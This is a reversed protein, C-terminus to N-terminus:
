SSLPWDTGDYRERFLHSKSWKWSRNPLQVLKLLELLQKNKCMMKLMQKKKLLHKTKYDKKKKKLPKRISMSHKKQVSRPQRTCTSASQATIKFILLLRSWVSKISLITACSSDPRWSSTTKMTSTKTASEASHNRTWIVKPLNFWLSILKIMRMKDERRATVNSRFLWNTLGTSQILFWQIHLNNSM